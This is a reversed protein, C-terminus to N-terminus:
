LMRHNLSLNWKYLQKGEHTYSFLPYLSPELASFISGKIDKSVFKSGWSRM